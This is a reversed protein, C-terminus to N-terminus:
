AGCGRCAVGLALPLQALLLLALGQESFASGVLLLNGAAFSLLSLNLGTAVTRRAVPRVWRGNCCCWCADSTWPTSAACGDGGPSCRGGWPEPPLVWPM